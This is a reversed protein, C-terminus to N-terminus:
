EHMREPSLLGTTAKKEVQQTGVLIEIRLGKMAAIAKKLM